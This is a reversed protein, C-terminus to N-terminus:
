SGAGAPALTRLAARLATEDYGYLVQDNILVVPVGQGGLREYQARGETSKEIDYERFPIGHSSFFKRTRACYSCWDTAYLVAQFGAPVVIPPPPDLWNRIDVRHQLGFVALLAIIWFAYRM